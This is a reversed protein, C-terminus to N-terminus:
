SMAYRMGRKSAWPGGLSGVLVCVHFTASAFQIFIWETTEPIFCASLRTSVNLIIHDSKAVVCFVFLSPGRGWYVLKFIMVFLQFIVYHAFHNSLM